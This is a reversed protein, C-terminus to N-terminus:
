RENNRRGLLIAPTKRQGSKKTFEFPLTPIKHIANVIKDANAMTIDRPDKRARWMTQRSVGALKCLRVLSYGKQQIVELENMFSQAYTMKDGQLEM